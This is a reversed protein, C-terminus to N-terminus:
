AGKFGILFVNLVRSVKKFCGQFERSVGKSSGQGVRFSEQFLRSVEKFCGQFVKSVERLNM